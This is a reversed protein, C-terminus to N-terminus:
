VRNTILLVKLLYLIVKTSDLTNLYDMPTSSTHDNLTINYKGLMEDVYGEQSLLISRQPRDRTIHYGLYYKMEEDVTIDYVESIKSKIYNLLMRSKSMLGFDDVHKTIIAFQGMYHLTYCCDDEATPVCGFSRLLNDSHEHFYASAQKM